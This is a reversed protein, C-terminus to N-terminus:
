IDSECYIRNLDITKATTGTVSMVQAHANLFQTNGPLTTTYEVNDIAVAGTGVNVLRVTIGSGNPAGYLFLDWVANVTSKAIGTDVKTASTGDRRIIQWNTDTSDFGVAITHNQASPEGALAANLASLGILARLDSASTTVGYRYFCFFGGLGAANGRWVVPNTSQIGSSGTATTGTGFQARKMQTLINTTARTPHSQAAGTGANRATWTEGIAISVTTGTSPLWMVVNNGFLAPQVIWDVGSPGVFKPLRRGARNQVFFELGSAPASPVATVEPLVIASETNLEASRWVIARLDVIQNGQIATDGAPVYVVALLADGATKAPPKPNAAATGTRVVPAGGDSDAVVLDFRPNTADATAITGNGADLTRQVRGSLVVGAAVAVTMNPSGQATVAGGSIVAESQALGDVLADTYEQFLISQRDNAGEGKDPISWGVALAASSALAGLALAALRSLQRV